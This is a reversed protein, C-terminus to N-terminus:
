LMFLLINFNDKKEKNWLSCLSIWGSTAGVRGESVKVQFSVSQITKNLNYM